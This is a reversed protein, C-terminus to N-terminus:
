TTLVQAPVETADGCLGCTQKCRSQCNAKRSCKNQNNCRTNCWDAPKTDLCSSGTATVELSSLCVVSIIAFCLGKPFVTMNCPKEELESIWSFLSGSAFSLQTKYVDSVTIYM